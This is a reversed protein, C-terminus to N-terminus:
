AATNGIYTSFFPGFLNSFQVTVNKSELEQGIM